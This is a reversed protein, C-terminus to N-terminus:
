QLGFILYYCINKCPAYFMVLMNDAKSIHDKFNSDTLKVISESGPYTGFDVEKPKEPPSHPDNLYKVFDDAQLQANEIITLLIIFLKCNVTRGGNYERETKLYSFYKFTPFGKVSYASCVSNHKTCDVAAM